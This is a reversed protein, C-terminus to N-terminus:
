KILKQIGDELSFKPTYGLYQVANRINLSGRKPMDFPIGDGYEIKSKTNTWGKIIEIADQLTRAQGYSVNAIFNHTDFM